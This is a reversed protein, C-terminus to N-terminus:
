TTAVPSITLVRRPRGQELRGAIRTVEASDAFQLYTFQERVGTADRAFARRLTNEAVVKRDHILPQMSTNLRGIIPSAISACEHVNQAAIREKNARAIDAAMNCM